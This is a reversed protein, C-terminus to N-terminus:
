SNGELVAKRTLEVNEADKWYRGFHRLFYSKKEKASEYERRKEEIKKDLLLIADDKDFMIDDVSKILEIDKTRENFAIITIDASSYDKSMYAIVITPLKQFPEFGVVVGAYINYSEGYSKKLVSVRDGVKLNEVVTAQRMDVEFKTGKIEIIRKTESM